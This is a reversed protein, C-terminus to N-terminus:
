PAAPALPALPEIRDQSLVYLFRAMRERWPYSKGSPPLAVEVEVRDQDLVKSCAVRPPPEYLGRQGSVWDMVHEEATQRLRNLHAPSTKSYGYALWMSASHSERLM